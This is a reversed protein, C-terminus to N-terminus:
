RAEDDVRPRDLAGGVVLVVEGKPQRDAYRRALRRLNDRVFEEHIKTMERAVCAPRDDGFVEALEDLTRATRVPSEYLVISGRETALEEMWRRRKGKKRPAFGAFLFRDMPLGSGVLAAIVACPGPVVVVEIDAAIAARVLVFGPDSVGPTGADSVIAVSAGEDVMRRVLEPTRRSENADFLSLMRGAGSAGMSQLLRGTRRTDEAAIVDVERLVQAARPALDGLNGIPTAVVYLRGREECDM